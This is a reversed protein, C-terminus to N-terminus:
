KDKLKQQLTIVDIAVQAEYMEILTSFITQHRLDYFTEAGGKMKEVCEGMCENPSILICSLVGMEAEISHPPLRDVNAAASHAPKRRRARKLDAGAGENSVSDIM